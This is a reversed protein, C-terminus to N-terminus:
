VEKWWWISFQRTILDEVLEGVATIEVNKESRAGKAVIDIGLVVEQSVERPLFVATEEDDVVGAKGACLGHVREGGGGEATERRLARGGWRKSVTGVARVRVGGVHEGPHATNRELAGDWAASHASHAAEVAGGARGGVYARGVFDVGEEAEHAHMCAVGRTRLGAALGVRAVDGGDARCWGGAEEVRARGRSPDIGRSIDWGVAYGIVRWAHLTAMATWEVGGFVGVEGLGEGADSIVGTLM